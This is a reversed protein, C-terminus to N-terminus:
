TLQSLVLVCKAEKLLTLPDERREFFQTESGRVNRNSAYFSFTGAIGYYVIECDLYVSTFRIKEFNFLLLFLGIFEFQKKRVIIFQM